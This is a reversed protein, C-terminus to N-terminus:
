EVRVPPASLQRLSTRFRDFSLHEAAWDRGVRGLARLDSRPPTERFATSWARIAEKAAAESVVPLLWGCALRGDPRRPLEHALDHGPTVIVPLGFALAEALAFGFNERHSLSLFGDASLYADALAQGALGGVVHVRGTTDATRVAAASLDGDMGVVALHCRADAAQGFARVTELPRKMSHLRGVSLLLPADAPIGHRGRFRIRGAESEALSPLDVPWHVVVARESGGIWPRAKELERQTACVIREAGDFYRRGHVTLWVRKAVARRALGWPDLCGHPVAWYRRGRRRAWGAAWPAHARFMSHVVLLEADAVLEEARRRAAPPMVHCDRSLLGSGCAVRRAGDTAALSQRDRRGDDFSLVPADLARSFDNVARYLGAFAPDHTLCVNWARSM